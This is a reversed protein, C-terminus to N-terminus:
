FFEPKILLDHWTIDFERSLQKNGDRRIAGSDDEKRSILKMGMHKAAVKNVVDYHTCAVNM